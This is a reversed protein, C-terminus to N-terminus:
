WNNCNKGLYIYIYFENNLNKIFSNPKYFCIYDINVINFNVLFTTLM